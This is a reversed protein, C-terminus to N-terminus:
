KWYSVLYNPYRIETEELAIEIKMAQNLSMLNTGKFWRDFNSQTVNTLKSVRMRGGYKASLACLYAHQAKLIAKLLAEKVADSQPKLTPVQYKKGRLHRPMTQLEKQTVEKVKM